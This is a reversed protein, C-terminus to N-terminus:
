LLTALREGSTTRQHSSTLCTHGVVLSWRSFVLFKDLFPLCVSPSAGHPRKRELPKKTFGPPVPTEGQVRPFTHRSRRARTREGEGGCGPYARLGPRDSVVVM